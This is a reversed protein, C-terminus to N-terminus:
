WPYRGADIAPYPSGDPNPPMSSFVDHRPATGLARAINGVIRRGESRVLALGRYPDVGLDDVKLAEAETWLEQLRREIRALGALWGRILRETSDDPRTGGDAASQVATLAAELRPDAQLFIAGFGMYHRLLARDAETWSM